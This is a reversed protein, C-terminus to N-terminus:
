KSNIIVKILAFIFPVSHYNSIDNKFHIIPILLINPDPKLQDEPIEEVYIDQSGLSSIDMNNQFVYEIRGNVATYLRLRGLNEVKM